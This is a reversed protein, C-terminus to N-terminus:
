ADQDGREHIEIDAVPVGEPRSLWTLYVRRHYVGDDASLVYETGYGELVVTDGRVVEDVTLNRNPDSNYKSLVRIKDGSEVGPITNIEGDRAPLLDEESQEADDEVRGGDTRVLADRCGACYRSGEVRDHVGCAACNDEHDVVDEVSLHEAGSVSQDTPV